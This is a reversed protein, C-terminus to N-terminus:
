FLIALSTSAQNAWFPKL